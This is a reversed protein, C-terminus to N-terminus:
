HVWIGRYVVGPPQGYPGYPVPPPVMIQRRPLLNMDALTEMDLRGTPRLDADRQYAVLAGSLSDSLEGDVIGRYFGERALRDQARQITSRQVVPPASEYPTKRFFRAYEPPLSQGAYPQAQGAYPQAQAQPPQAQGPPQVQGPPQPAAEDDQAAPPPPPNRLIDHDSQVVDPPPTQAGAPQDTPPPPVAQVTNSDQSNAGLNLSALTQADAKGTVELGQRIQYRRIAADTEPGEQGDVTGYYFGKDKLTQQLAQTQNDARALTSISLVVLLLFLRKM